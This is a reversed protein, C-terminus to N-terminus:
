RRVRLGAFFTTGPAPFGAIDQYDAGLVNDGRVILSVAGRVPLVGAVDVRVYAPLTVPAPPYQAFDRDAREGVRAASLHWSGGDPFTRALSATVVHPPRRILREGRVYSAGASSDFGAATVRTDTYSWGLVATLGSTARLRAEIELGDARAAAVNHYNPVGPAPAGNYQVINEFQQTFGTVALTAAGGAALEAGLEASRSTEPRLAPNGAVFGTAFNEFFSPARFANGAAARVRMRPTAQWALAARGTAFDGFASSRDLRAGATWSVTRALDGLVQAYFGTGHRAAEFGDLSAGYESLSTSSSRERERAVEAGITLTQRGPALVNVRLDAGRRTRVSRSLYGFFGATDAADDPWDNTRPLYEHATLSARLEVHPSLHRGADLGVTLRHDSQEANRDVVAGAFDTPYHFTAASWRTAVRVTTRADPVFTVGGTLAASEYANNFALTGSTREHTAGISFGARRTGGARALDARRAGHSGVGAGWEVARRGGARTFVQVVGTVADSGYLVGAPGRVV